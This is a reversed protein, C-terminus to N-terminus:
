GNNVYPKGKKSCSYVWSIKSKDSIEKNRKEVEMKCRKCFISNDVAKEGCDCFADDIRWGKGIGRGPERVM